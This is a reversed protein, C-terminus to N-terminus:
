DVGLCRPGSTGSAAGGGASVQQRRERRRGLSEGADYFADLVATEGFDLEGFNVTTLQAGEAECARVLCLLAGAEPSRAGTGAKLNSDNLVYVARLSRQRSVSGNSEGGGIAAAGPPAESGTLAETGSPSSLPESDGSGGQQEAAASASGGGGSAASEM